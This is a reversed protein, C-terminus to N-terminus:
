ICFMNQSDLFSEPFPLVGGGGRNALTKFKTNKQSEKGYMDEKLQYKESGLVNLHVRHGLLQLFFSCWLRILSFRNYERLFRFVKFAKETRVTKYNVQCM